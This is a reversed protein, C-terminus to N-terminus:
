VTDNKIVWKRQILMLVSFIIILFQAFLHTHLTKTFDGSLVLVIVVFWIFNLITMLVFLAISDVVQYTVTRVVTENDNADKFQKQTRVGGDLGYLLKMKMIWLDLDDKVYIGSINFVELDDRPLELISNNKLDLCICSVRFIDNKDELFGVIVYESTYDLLKMGSEYKEIGKFQLSYLSREKTM